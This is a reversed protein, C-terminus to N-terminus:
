GKRRRIIDFLVIGTSVSANLSNAKGLMEIKVSYDVTEKILRSMGKGESGIVIGLPCDVQIETYSKTSDLATGVIWYGRKKLTDITQRLNIVECVPLHELAGSAVKVVTSNIGVARNKPYILGHAGAAEATRIIAGLNHPDEIGDLLVLLPQTTSILSLLQELTLPEFDPIELAVGQHNGDFRQNMLDKRLVEYPIKVQSFIPGYHPVQSDMLYAKKVEKKTQLYELVSNKGFIIM